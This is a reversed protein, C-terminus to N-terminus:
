LIRELDELASGSEEEEEETTPEPTSPRTEVESSSTTTTPPATKKREPTTTEPRRLLAEIDANEIGTVIVTVRLVDNMDEEIQAGWIVTADDALESAVLEVVEEAEKLTLDKGGKVHVLAGKAGSIDVDILPNNLANEVAKVARNGGDANEAEGIGILAYGGGEMVARVDAFDLNMLGPKTIMETIGKVANILVEDAVKFAATLPLDPVVELLRDNPIVICTDATQQLRELGKLANEMRRKGEVSFPLTVVAITLAGEKKAVEAIVPAAGTGTGGGLGCTVFVMDADKVVDRIKELDEKAAEEGIKPDGGAGLGRTLDYGILIKRDAKAALLDQADTNVAVVEAGEIGAEKLRTVTNNGAGGVGIVVIRARAEELIKVLEEDDESPPTDRGHPPRPATPREEERELRELAEKVIQEM